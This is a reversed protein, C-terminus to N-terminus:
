VQLKIQEWIQNSDFGDVYLENLSTLPTPETAKAVYNIEILDGNMM